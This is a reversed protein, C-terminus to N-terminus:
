SAVPQHLGEVLRTARQGGRHRLSAVCCGSRPCCGSCRSWRLVLSCVARRRAPASRAPLGAAGAPAGDTAPTRDPSPETGSDITADDSSGGSGASTSSCRRCRGARLLMVALASGLGQDHAGGFSVRWMQLAIVNADDQVSAPAIVFVLDFVKLVNIMLTVLVVVLVPRLLPVTVRRFVQWENAGDVRAAELAERPIAPWARARDAGDRLRGLDLPVRRHDVPHGAGPGLWTSAASRRARLQRRGAAAPLRRAAPRHVHLHRGTPRHGDAVVTATGSRRRGHM